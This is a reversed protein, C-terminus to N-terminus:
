IRPTDRAGNLVVAMRVLDAVSSAEMKHMIHARHVDVTRPSIGLEDAIVKSPEGAVIHRLVEIERPTLRKHRAAVRTREVHRSRTQASLLIAARIRSVLTAPDVPKEIVDFAGDKIAQIAMRVTAHATLLIVPLACGLETLRRQLDLGTMGPMRFDLVLCGPRDDDMPPRFDEARRYSEVEFGEAELLWRLADRVGDDDDVLYVRPAPGSDHTRPTM